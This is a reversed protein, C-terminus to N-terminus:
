HQLATHINGMEKESVCALSLAPILPHLKEQGASHALEVPADALSYIYFPLTPNCDSM